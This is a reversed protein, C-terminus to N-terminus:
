PWPFSGRIDPITRVLGTGGDVVAAMPSEIVLRAGGGFGDATVRLTLHLSLPAVDATGQLATVAGNAWRVEGAAPAHGGWM